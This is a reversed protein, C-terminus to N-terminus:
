ISPNDDLPWMEMADEAARLAHCGRGGAPCGGGISVKPLARPAFEPTPPAALLAAVRPWM